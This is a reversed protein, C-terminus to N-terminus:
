WAFLDAQVAEGGYREGRGRKRSKRASPRWPRSWSELIRKLEALIARQEAVNQEIDCRIRKELPGRHPNKSFRWAPDRKAAGLSRQIARLARNLESLAGRMRSLSAKVDDAGSEMETLALLTELRELNRAEHAEQVDHWIASVTSDGDARLDPHLRRVLKRYIDKIRAADPDAAPKEQRQNRAPKPEPATGFMDEEFKAFMQAYEAKGMRKPNMGLFSRVFDEFLAERDEKPIEAGMDEFGETDEEWNGGNEAGNDEGPKSKSAEAFDDNGTPSERRKMVAAYARGPNSHNGLIMEMEVEQVLIQQDHILQSNERLETLLAGFTAAMWRGFSPRDEQEFSRLEARANELKELARSCEKKARKRLPGDDVPVIRRDTVPAHKAGTHGAPAKRRRTGRNMRAVIDPFQCPYIDLANLIMSESRDARGPVSGMTRLVGM